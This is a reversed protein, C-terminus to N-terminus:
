SDTLGTWNGFFFFFMETWVILQNWTDVLTIDLSIALVAGLLQHTFCVAGLKTCGLKRSAKGRLLEAFSM